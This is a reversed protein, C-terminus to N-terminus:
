LRKKLGIVLKNIEKVGEGYSSKSIYRKKFAVGLLNKQYELKRIRKAASGFKVKKIENVKNKWNKSNDMVKKSWLYNFVLFSLALVVVISYIIINLPSNGPDLDVRDSISFMFSSTGVSKGDESSVIAYFVYDGFELDGPIEFIKTLQVRREVELDQNDFSIVNGDFDSFVYELSVMKALSKLNFIRLDVELRGGPFISLTNSPLESTVDFLLDRSEVEFIIPVNNSNEAKRVLVKGIYVGEALGKSDLSVSIDQQAGNTLLFSEKNISIFNGDSTTEVVFEGLSGQNSVVLRDTISEGMRVSGKILINDIEFSDGQSSVLSFLLVALLIFVFKKFMM